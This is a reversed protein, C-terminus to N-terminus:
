KKLNFFKGRKQWPRIELAKFTNEGSIEGILKIKLGTSPTLKGKWLTDNIDIKWQNSDFDILKFSNKFLEIEGITGALLGKQPQMWQNECTYTLNKYYPIKELFINDLKESFGNYYFGTGLIASIILSIFLISIFRFRYGRKTHIFNYYAVAIFLIFFILWLYPLSIFVTTLFSDGLYHYVDWDLQTIMFLIIGFTLSGLLVSFGFMLWIFYNKTLFHWRPKPKINNDKIKKFIEDSINKM